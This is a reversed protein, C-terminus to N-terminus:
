IKFKNTKKYDSQKYREVCAHFIETAEKADGWGGIAVKKKELDKDEQSKNERSFINKFKNFFAM